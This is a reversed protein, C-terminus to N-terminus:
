ENALATRLVFHILPLRDRIDRVLCPLGSIDKYAKYFDEVAGCATVITGIAALVALFEAGPM